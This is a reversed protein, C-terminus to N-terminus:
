ALEGCDAIVVRQLPRGSRRDTPVNQVRDVLDYGELVRGFVVHKGNLWPTPVTTIFFQSGNTNPGANAMSLIGPTSHELALGPKEDPFTRGYISKGGTGNGATFDGGQLVFDKIVRHFTCGKYGYGESGKALAVFNAATKPVVDGYLGLVVRGSLEPSGGDIELFVKNTVAPEDAALAPLPSAGVAVAAAVAAAAGLLQRKSAVRQQEQHAQQHASSSSARVAQRAPARFAVPSARVSGVQRQIAHM